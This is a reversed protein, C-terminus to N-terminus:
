IREQRLSSLQAVADNLDSYTFEYCDCSDIMRAMTEFGTAGLLSYNFSAEALRLFARSKPLANLQTPSAASYTMFLISAPMSTESSRDVCDRTPKVHAVSGKHSEPWIDSIVAEPAFKRIVEISENKLGIPRPIPVLHGDSPRVLALEDSYLRWGRFSLAAALTSKGSGPPAIFLLTCGKRELVASHIMLYQHAYNAICWNMGWELLPFALRLPFPNFPIKGHLRFIVQPHWWSRLGGPKAIQVYFDSFLCDGALLFDAYLSRLTETVTELRTKLNFTFPGVQFNLGTNQLRNRLETASLETIKV